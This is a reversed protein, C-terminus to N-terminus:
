GNSGEGGVVKEMFRAFSEDFQHPGAEDDGHYHDHELMAQAWIALFLSKLSKKMDEKEDCLAMTHAISAGLASVLSGFKKPTFDTAMHQMMELTTRRYDM